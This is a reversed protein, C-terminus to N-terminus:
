QPSMQKTFLDYQNSIIPTSIEFGNDARLQILAAYTLSQDEKLKQEALTATLTEKMEEFSTKEEGGTRKIIHYGFQTQVPTETVQGIELAFAAVEFEPVMQGKGFSGLAGGNAGSGPDASFEKALEAFDEGDNIKKILSRAKEKAVVLAADTDDEAKILIHSAEIKPSFNDYAAQLEEDTIISSAVYKAVYSNRQENLLLSQKFTAEDKFGNIILSDAFDDKYYAKISEINGDVVTTMQETAPEVENLIAQDVMDLLTQMGVKTQMEANLAEQSLTGQTFTAIVTTDEPAVAAAQTSCGSIMTALAAVSLVIAMRKKFQM